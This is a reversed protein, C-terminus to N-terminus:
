NGEAELRRRQLRGALAKRIWNTPDKITLKKNADDMKDLIEVVDDVPLGSAVDLVESSIIADKFGGISNMWAIKDRLRRGFRDHCDDPAQKEKGKFAKCLWATPDKIADRGNADGM